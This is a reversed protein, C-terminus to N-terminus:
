GGGQASRIIDWGADEPLNHGALNLERIARRRDRELRVQYPDADEPMGFEVALGRLEELEDEKM